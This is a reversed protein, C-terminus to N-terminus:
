SLAAPDYQPHGAPAPAGAASSQQLRQRGRGAAPTAAPPGAAGQQLLREAVTAEHQQGPTLLV